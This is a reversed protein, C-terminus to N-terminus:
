KRSLMREHLAVFFSADYGVQSALIAHQQAASANFTLDV